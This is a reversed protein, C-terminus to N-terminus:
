QEPWSNMAIMARLMDTMPYPASSGPGFYKEHLAQFRGDASMGVITLNAIRNFKSSGPRLPFAQLFSNIGPDFVRWRATDTAFRYLIPGDSAYAEISGTQLATFGQPHDPFAVTTIPRAIRGRASLDRFAAMELGGQPVGVRRGALDALTRIPSDAPVLVETATVFTPVTFDVVRTRARTVVTAGAEMDITSNQLLPIRTQSTVPVYNVQIRGGLERNVNELIAQAIETAFGVYNGSADKFGYPPTAERVGLNFRGTRQIRDLTDEPCNAPQQAQASATTAAASGLGAVVALWGRRDVPPQNPM